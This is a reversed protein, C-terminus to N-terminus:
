FWVKALQSCIIMTIIFGIAKYFMSSTLNGLFGDENYESRLISGFTPTQKGRVKNLFVFFIWIYVAGLYEFLYM